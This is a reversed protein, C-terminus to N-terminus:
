EETNTGYDTRHEYEAAADQQETVAARATAATEVFGPPYQADPFEPNSNAAGGEMQAASLEGDRVQQAQPHEFSRKDDADNADATAGTDPDVNPAQPSPTEDESSRRRPM